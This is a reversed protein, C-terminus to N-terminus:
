RASCSAPPLPRLNMDPSLYDGMSLLGVLSVAVHLRVAFPMFPAMRALWSIDLGPWFRAAIRVALTVAVAALLLSITAAQAAFAWDMPFGHHPFWMEHAIPPAQFGSM